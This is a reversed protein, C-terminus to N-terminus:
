NIYKQQKRAVYIQVIYKIKIKNIIQTLIM